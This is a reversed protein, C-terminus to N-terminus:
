HPPEECWTALISSNAEAVTRGIFIWPQNIKLFETTKLIECHQEIMVM